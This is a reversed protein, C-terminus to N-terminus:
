RLRAAPSSKAATSRMEHPNEASPILNDIIGILAIGAFFSAVNIWHGWSRRLGRGALRRGQRLDGRVVRLADRGRLFGHRGVLFRHETRKAFFAMASGIGTAMGAFITLGFAIWVNDM